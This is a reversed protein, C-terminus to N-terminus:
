NNVLVRATSRSQRTSIQSQLNSIEATKPIEHTHAKEVGYAPFRPLLPHSTHMTQRRERVLPFRISRLHPTDILPPAAFVFSCARPLDDLCTATSPCDLSDICCPQAISLPVRVTPAPAAVVYSCARLRDDPYAATSAITCKELLSVGLLMLRLLSVVNVVHVTSAKAYTEIKFWIPSFEIQSYLLLM